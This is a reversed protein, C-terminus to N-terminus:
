RIVLDELRTGLSLQTKFWHPRRGRGAWTESPLEPNQYKPLVTPYPRRRSRAEKSGKREIDPPLGQILLALRKKLDTLEVAIRRSLIEGVKERLTWLEDVSMVGLEIGIKADAVITPDNHKVDEYPLVFSRLCVAM